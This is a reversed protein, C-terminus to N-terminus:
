LSTVCPTRILAELVNQLSYAMIIIVVVLVCIYRPPSQLKERKGSGACCLLSPQRRSSPPSAPPAGRVTTGININIIAAREVNAALQEELEEYDIEGSAVTSVQMGALGRPPSGRRPPRPDRPAAM